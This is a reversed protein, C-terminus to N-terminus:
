YINQLDPCGVHMGLPQEESGNSLLLIALHLHCVIFAAIGKCAKLHAARGQVPRGQEPDAM